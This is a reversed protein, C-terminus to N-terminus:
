ERRADIWLGRDLWYPEDAGLIEPRGWDKATEPPLPGCGMGTYAHVWRVIEATSGDKPFPATKAEREAGPRVFEWLRANQNDIMLIKRPDPSFMMAKHDIPFRWGAKQLKICSCVPILQNCIMTPQFVAHELSVTDRWALLWHDKEVLQDPQHKRAVLRTHKNATVVWKGDETFAVARNKTRFPAGSLDPFRGGGGNLDSRRGMDLQWMTGPVALNKSDPSFRFERVLDIQNFPWGPKEAEKNEAVDWFYIEQIGNAVLIKGNPSFAVARKGIEPFKAFDKISARFDARLRGSPVEWLFVDLHNGTALLKRDPSFAMSDPHGADIRNYVPDAEIAIKTQTATDWLYVYYSQRTTFITGDPSFTVAEGYNEIERKQPAIPQATFGDYLSGGTGNKGGLFVAGDHRFVVKAHVGQFADRRGLTKGLLKGTAAEYLLYHDAAFLLRKGDPSFTASCYETFNEIEFVSLLVPMQGSWELMDRRIFGRLADRKQLPSIKEADDVIQLARALEVMGQAILGDRCDNRGTNYLTEARDFHRLQEKRLDELAQDERRSSAQYEQLARWAGFLSAGILFLVVLTAMIPHRKGSHWVRSWVPTRRAKIPEGNVFRQLDDALERASRYRQAPNKQLCKLCIVELDRPTRARIKRPSAPEDAVVKNLTEWPTQGRFPPRGTLLEYLIAGLAYIDAAPMLTKSANVQEPAMYSPTGVIAGTRTVGRDKEILRALGFDGVLPEGRADLLINAPKLDRHLIGHQHAAFVARAVKELVQAAEKPKGILDGVKDALSGGELWKMVFYHQGEHEGVEYIPVVNPHDLNAALQAEAQFREIDGPSALHGALIVKLAVIRGLSIQHARYVIGMGGRAIEELLEFDGLRGLAPRAHAHDIAEIGVTEAEVQSRSPQRVMGALEGIQGHASFFARLDDALDPHRRLWEQPDPDAGAEVAKLYATVIEDLRRERDSNGTSENEM